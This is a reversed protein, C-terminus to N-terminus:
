KIAEPLITNQKEKEAVDMFIKEGNQSHNLYQFVPPM